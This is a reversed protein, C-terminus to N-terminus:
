FPSEKSDNQGQRTYQYNKLSHFLKDTQRTISADQPENDLMIKSLMDYFSQEIALWLQKDLGDLTDFLKSM